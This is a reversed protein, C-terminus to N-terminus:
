DQRITLTKDFEEIAEVLAGAVKRRHESLVLSKGEVPHTLFAAEVVVAPMNAGRLVGFNAQKVGRDTSDLKRSMNKQVTEALLGSDAHLRARILDQQINILADDHLGVPTTDHMHREIGTHNHDATAIPQGQIEEKGPTVADAHLFYTEYGVARNHVAANYHLSLFIDAEALNAMHVRENLELSADWYRTLIVRAHPYRAQLMARLEYALDLTLHKERVEAVGVAGSNNGGHGADIVITRVNKLERHQIKAADSARNETHLYQIKRSHDHLTLVTNLDIGRISGVFASAPAPIATILLSAIMFIALLLRQATTTLRHTIM